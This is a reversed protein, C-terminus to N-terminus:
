FEERTRTFTRSEKINRIIENASDTEDWAGFSKFFRDNNQDIDEKINQSLKSILVLKSENSM